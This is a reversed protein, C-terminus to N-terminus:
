GRRDLDVHAPEDLRVNTWTRYRRLTRTTTYPAKLVDPDTITTEISMTDPGTLRVRELIRM